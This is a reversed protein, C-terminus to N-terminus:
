VYRVDENHEYFTAKLFDDYSPPLSREGTGCDMSGDTDCMGEDLLQGNDILHPNRLLFNNSVSSTPPGHMLLSSSTRYVFEDCGNRWANNHSTMASRCATCQAMAMRRQSWWCCWICFFILIISLGVSVAVIMPSHLCKMMFSQQEEDQQNALSVSISLISQLTFIYLWRFLIM